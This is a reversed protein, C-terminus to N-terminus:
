AFCFVMMHHSKRDLLKLSANRLIVEISKLQGVCLYVCMRILFFFTTNDFNLRLKTSEYIFIVCREGSQIDALSSNESISESVNEDVESDRCSIEIAKRIAKRIDEVESALKRSAGSDM